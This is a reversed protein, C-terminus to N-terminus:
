KAGEDGLQQAIRHVFRLLGALGLYFGGLAFQPAASAWSLFTYDTIKV